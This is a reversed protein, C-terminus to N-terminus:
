DANEGHEESFGIQMEAETSVRSSYQKKRHRNVKANM